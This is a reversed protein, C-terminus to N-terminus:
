TGNMPYMRPHSPWVGGQRRLSTASETLNHDHLDACYVLAGREAFARAAERGIGSGAGTVLVIRNEFDNPMTRGM